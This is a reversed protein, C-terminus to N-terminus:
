PCYLRIWDLVTIVRKDKKLHAVRDKHAKVLLEVATDNSNAFCEELSKRFEKEYLARAFQRVNNPNLIWLLNHTECTAAFEPDYGIHFDFDTDGEPFDFWISFCMRPNYAPLVRHMIIESWFLVVRNFVPEIKVKKGLFIQFQLEGGDDAKWDKNLYCIMTLRRKNPSGPNDYHYPFCGGNGENFQAKISSSQSENRLKYGCIKQM